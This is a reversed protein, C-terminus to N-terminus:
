QKINCGLATQSPPPALGALIADLADRLFQQEVRTDMLPNDDIKGFYALQWTDGKPQFIFAEPNKTAGVMKALRGQPDHLYPCPYGKERARAQMLAFRDDQSLDPANSNVLVFAAGKSACERALNILRDEYKKSYVCHNGTFVLVLAKKDRFGSLRVTHSDVNMLAVSDLSVSQAPVTLGLSLLALFILLLRQM